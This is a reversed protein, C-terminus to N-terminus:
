SAVQSILHRRLSEDQYKRLLLELFAFVMLPLRRLFVGGIRGWGEKSLHLNLDRRGRPGVDSSNGM